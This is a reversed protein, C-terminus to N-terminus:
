RAGASDKPLSAIVAGVFADLAPDGDIWRLVILLDHESDIYLINQGNGRFIVATEPASPLVRRQPNLFWNAFGYDDKAAGPTRARALFDRSILQRDNWRGERLILYGFRALDWADIFMGGGWHGGGSVSQMKQGDVTVWSNRYGHWRWRTSAGIPDMIRERLVVSLPRRWVQLAALALLNIRVDNYEYRSGPAHRPTLPWQAPDAGEPRDAWDPRGWLTGQWDSTQRLLMDWSIPRNHPSDFLDVDAPMQGAVPAALDAILGDDHALGVVSSLFSKAISHTMDVRTTEGFEAIVKGQLVVIGVVGAARVSTPGLLGGFHPERAGFGQAWSLAQDRPAPNEHARVAEVAADLTREDVELAAPASRAWDGRPPFYDEGLALGSLLVLSLVCCARGLHRIVVSELM